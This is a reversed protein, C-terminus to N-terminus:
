VSLITVQLLKFHVMTIHTVTMTATALILLGITTIFPKNGLFRKFRKRTVKFYVKEFAMINTLVRAQKRAEYWSLMNIVIPVLYITFLYDIVAEEFRGEATRVMEVKDWKIYGIYGCVILFVVVSYIMLQLTVIFTPGSQTIPCIGLVRMLTLMPKLSEHLVSDVNKREQFAHVPLGASAPAIKSIPNEGKNQYFPAAGELYVSRKRPRSIVDDLLDLNQKEGM